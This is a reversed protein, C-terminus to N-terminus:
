RPGVALCLCFELVSWPYRYMHSIGQPIGTPHTTEDSGAQFLVMVLRTTDQSSSDLSEHPHSWIALRRAQRALFQVSM